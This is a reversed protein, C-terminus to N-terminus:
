ETYTLTKFRSDLDPLLPKASSKSLLNELRAPVPYHIGSYANAKNEHLKGEPTHKGTQEKGTSTTFDGIISGGITSTISLLM